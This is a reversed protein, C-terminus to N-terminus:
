FTSTLIINFHVTCFYSHLSYIPTIQRLMKESITIFNTTGYHVLLLSDAENRLNNTRQKILHQKLTERMYVYERKARAYSGFNSQRGLVSLWTYIVGQVSPITV